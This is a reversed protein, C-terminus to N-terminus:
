NYPMKEIQQTENFIIDEFNGKIEELQKKTSVQM